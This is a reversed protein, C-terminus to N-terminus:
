QAAQLALAEALHVDQAGDLLGFRGLDYQLLAEVVEGVEGAGEVDDAVDVAAGGLQLGQEGLQAELVADVGLAARGHEDAVEDVAARVAGAHQAPHHAHDLGAVGQAHRAVVLVLEAAVQLAGLDLLGVAEGLGDLLQAALGLLEDGLDAREDGAQDAVVDEVAAPEHDAVRPQGLLVVAAGGAPDARVGQVPLGRALGVLEPQGHAVRPGLVVAALRGHDVAVGRDRVGRPDVVGDAEVRAGHEAPPHGRQAPRLAFQDVYRGLLDPVLRDLREGGLRGPTVVPAREVQGVHVAAAGHLGAVQAVDGDALLVRRGGQLDHAAERHVRPQHRVQRGRHRRRRGRPHVAEKLVRGLREGLVPRVADGLHDALLLVHAGAGGDQHALVGVRGARAEADVARGAGDVGAGPPGEEGVRLDGLLDQVPDARGYGGGAQPLLEGGVPQQEVPFQQGPRQLGGAQQAVLVRGDARGGAGDERVGEGGQLRGGPAAHVGALQQGALPLPGGVGPAEGIGVPAVAPAGVPQVAYPERRELQQGRGPPRQGRHGVVLLQEPQVPEDGGVLRGAGPQQAAGPPDQDVRGVLVGYPRAGVPPQLQGGRAALAHDDLRELRVGPVALPAQDLGADLHAAALVQPDDVTRLVRTGLLQLPQAPPEEPM